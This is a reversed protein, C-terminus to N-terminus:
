KEPSDLLKELAELDSIFLYDRVVSGDGWIKIVENSLAKGLFVGVAGQVSDTRQGKGYVNGLRLVNYNLNYLHNFLGLYKEIALKTIGYSCIPNTPHTESIPLTEPIGYVTGGSSAFIVKKVSEQLATELFNLTGLINTKADYIPNENSPGPVTSCVLHVVVDIGKLAASIDNSNNFDGAIFEISNMCEILNHLSINPLDFIRVQHGKEVLAAVINSGIFGAGGLVLCHM